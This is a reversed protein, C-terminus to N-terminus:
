WSGWRNDFRRRIKEMMDKKAKEEKMEDMWTFIADEIAYETAMQEKITEPDDSIGSRRVRIYEQKILNLLSPIMADRKVRVVVDGSVEDVQEKVQESM